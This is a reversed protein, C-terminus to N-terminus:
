KILTYIAYIVILISFFSFLKLLNQAVKKTNFLSFGFVILYSFKDVKKVEYIDFLERLGISNLYDQFKNSFTRLYNGSIADIDTTRINYPEEFADKPINLVTYIRCIYDVRAGFGGLLNTKNKQLKNYFTFFLYIRKFFNVKM